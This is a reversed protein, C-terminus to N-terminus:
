EAACTADRVLAEAQAHLTDNPALRRILALGRSGPLRVVPRDKAAAVDQGKAAVILEVLGAEGQLGAIHINSTTHDFVSLSGYHPWTPASLVVPGGSLDLLCVAYALDPSSRVVSQTEPTVRPATTWGNWSLGATELGTIARSMIFRPLVNVVAVHVVVPCVATSLAFAVLAAKM